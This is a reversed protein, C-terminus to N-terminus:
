WVPDRVVGKAKAPLRDYYAETEEWGKGEVGWDQVNYWAIGDDADRGAM